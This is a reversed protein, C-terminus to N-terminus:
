ISLIHGKEAFLYNRGDRESRVSLRIYGFTSHNRQLKRERSFVAMERSIRIAPSHKRSLATRGLERHYSRHRPDQHSLTLARTAAILFNGDGYYEGSLSLFLSPKNECAPSPQPLERPLQLCLCDPASASSLHKRKAAGGFHLAKLDLEWLARRRRCHCCRRSRGEM